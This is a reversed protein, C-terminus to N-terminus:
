VSLDLGIVSMKGLAGRNRVLGVVCGRGTNIDEVQQQFITTFNFVSLVDLILLHLRCWPQWRVHAGLTKGNGFCFTRKYCIGFVGLFQGVVTHMVYASISQQSLSFIASTSCVLAAIESASGEVSCIFSLLAVCQQICGQQCMERMGGLVSMWKM